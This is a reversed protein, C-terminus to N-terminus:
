FGSQIFKLSMRILNLTKKMQFYEDKSNFFDFNSISKLAGSFNVFNNFHTPWGTNIFKDIQSSQQKTKVEGVM